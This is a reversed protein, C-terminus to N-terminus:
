NYLFLTTRYNEAANCFVEECNLLKKNRLLFGQINSQVVFSFQVSPVVSFAKHSMIRVTLLHFGIERELFLIYYVMYLIRTTAFCIM